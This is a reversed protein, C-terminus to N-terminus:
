LKQMGMYAFCTLCHSIVDMTAKGSQPTTMLFGSYTDIAVHVNKVQWVRHHSDCVNVM